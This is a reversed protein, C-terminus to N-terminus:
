NIVSAVFILSYCTHWKVCMCGMGTASGFNRKKQRDTRRKTKIKKPPLAIIHLWLGGVNELPVNPLNPFPNDGGNVFMKKKFKCHKSANQEESEEVYFLGGCKTINIVLYLPGWWGRLEVVAYGWPTPRLESTSHESM